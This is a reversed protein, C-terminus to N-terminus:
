RKVATREKREGRGLLWNQTVGFVVIIATLIMTGAGGVGLDQQGGGLSILYLHVLPPRAYPPYSGISGLVRLQGAAYAAADIRTVEVAPDAERARAVVRDVAREALIAEAGQVLVVPAPEVTEWSATARAAPPM